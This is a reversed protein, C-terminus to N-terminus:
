LPVMSYRPLTNNCPARPVKFLRALWRQHDLPGAASVPLQRQPSPDPQPHQCGPSDADEGHLGAAEGRNCTKPLRLPLFILLLLLAGLAGGFYGSIRVVLLVVPFPLTPIQADEQRASASPDKRTFSAWFHPFIRSAILIIQGKTTQDLRQVDTEDVQDIQIQRGTTKEGRKQGGGRATNTPATRLLARRQGAKTTAPALRQYSSFLCRRGELTRM